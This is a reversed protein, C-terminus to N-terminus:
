YSIYCCNASEQSYAKYENSLSVKLFCDYENSGSPSNKPPLLSLFIYVCVISSEMFTITPLPSAENVM